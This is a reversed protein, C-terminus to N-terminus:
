TAPVSSFASAGTRLWAREQDVGTPTGTLQNGYIADIYDSGSAPPATCGSQIAPRPAWAQFKTPGM